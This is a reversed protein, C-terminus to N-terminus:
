WFVLRFFEASHRRAVHQRASTKRNEVVVTMEVVILVDSNRDVIDLQVGDSTSEKM